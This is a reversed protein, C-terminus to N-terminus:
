CTWIRYHYIHCAYIEMLFFQYRHVGHYRILPVSHYCVIQHYYSVPSYNLMFHIFILIYCKSALVDVSTDRPLSNKDSRKETCNSVDTKEDDSSSVDQKINNKNEIEFIDEDQNEISISSLLQKNDDDQTENKETTATTNTTCFNPM